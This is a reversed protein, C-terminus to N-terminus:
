DDSKLKLITIESKNRPLSDIFEEALKINNKDILLIDVISNTHNNKWPCNMAEKVLEIGAKIDRNCGIEYRAKFIIFPAIRAIDSEEEYKDIFGKM